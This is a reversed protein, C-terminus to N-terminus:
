GYKYVYTFKLDNHVQLSLCAVLLAVRKNVSIVWLFLIIAKDLHGLKVVNYCSTIVADTCHM